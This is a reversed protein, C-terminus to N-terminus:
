HVVKHVTQHLILQLAVKVVKNKTVEVAVLKDLLVLVQKNEEKLLVM